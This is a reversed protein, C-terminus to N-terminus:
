PRGRRRGRPRCSRRSARPPGPAAGGLADVDNGRHDLGVAAGLGLHQRAPRMEVAPPEQVLHIEVREDGPTLLERQDVFEGVAVDALVAVLLAPLVDLLHEGGADVDVGGEIDLMELRQVVGDGADGPDTDALRDRVADELEGVLDLQDVQRGLLEDLVNPQGSGYIRNASGNATFNTMVHVVEVQAPLVFNAEVNNRLFVTDTGGGAAEVISANRYPMYADGGNSGALVRSGPEDPAILMEEAASGTTQGSGDSIPYGNRELHDVMLNRMINRLTNDAATLGEGTQYNLRNVHENPDRTIDLAVRDRRSVV